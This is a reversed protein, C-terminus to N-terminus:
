SATTVPQQRDRKVRLKKDRTDYAVVIQGHDKKDRRVFNDREFTKAKLAKSKAHLWGYEESYKIAEAFQMLEHGYAIATNEDAFSYEDYLPSGESGPTALVRGRGTIKDVYYDFHLALLEQDAKTMKRIEEVSLKAIDFQEFAIDIDKKWPEFSDAFEGYRDGLEAEEAASQVGGGLEAYAESFVVARRAIERQRAIHLPSEGEEFRTADDAVDTLEALEKKHPSPFLDLQLQQDTM